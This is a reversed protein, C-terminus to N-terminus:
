SEEVYDPLEDVVFLGDLSDLGSKFLSLSERAEIPDETYKYYYHKAGDKLIEIVSSDGSFTDTLAVGDIEQFCEIYITYNADASKLFEISSGIIRYGNPAGSSNSNFQSNFDGFSIKDIDKRNGDELYYVARERIFGSPLTASYSGSSLTVTKTGILFRGRTYIPFRRLASKIFGFVKAALGTDSTDGGTEELIETVIASVLM